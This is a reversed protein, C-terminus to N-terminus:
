DELGPLSRQLGPGKFQITDPHEKTWARIWDSAMARANALAAKSGAAHNMGQCICSCPSGPKAKHCKADCRGSEGSSNQYSLVTTM